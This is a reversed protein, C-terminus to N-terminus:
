LVKYFHLIVKNAKRMGTSIFVSRNLWSYKSNADVEFKTATRMYYETSSVDEGQKLRTLVEPSGTRMGTNEIFIIIRDDTQLSYTAVLDATGDERITQWDAGGPLVIGSMHPGKFTGGNIGIIRRIGYKTKGVERPPDLTVTAEFVFELSPVPIEAKRYDMQNQQAM